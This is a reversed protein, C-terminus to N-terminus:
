EIPDVASRILKAMEISAPIIDYTPIKIVVSPRKDLTSTIDIKFKLNMILKKIAGEILRRKNERFEQVEKLYAKKRTKIYETLIQNRKAKSISAYKKSDRISKKKLFSKGILLLREELVSDWLKVLLEWNVRCKKAYEHWKRQILIVRDILKKFQHPLAHNNRSSKVCKLLQKEIFVRYNATVLTLINLARLVTIQAPDVGRKMSYMRQIRTALINKKTRELTKQRTKDITSQIYEISTCFYILSLWLKNRNQLTTLQEQMERNKKDLERKYNHKNITFITKEKKRKINENKNKIVIEKKIEWNNTKFMCTETIRLKSNAKNIKIFNKDPKRSRETQVEPLNFEDRLPSYDENNFMLHIKKRHFKKGFEVSITFTSDILAEVALYFYENKFKLNVETLQFFDQKFMSDCRFKDPETVLRSIYSVVKGMKRRINVLLPSKQNLAKIIFNQVNGKDLVIHKSEGENIMIKRQGINKNLAVIELKNLINEFDKTSPLKIGLTESPRSLGRASAPSAILSSHFSIKENERLTLGSLNSTEPRYPFSSRIDYHSDEPSKYFTKMSFTPSFSKMTRASDEIQPFSAESSISALFLNDKQKLQEQSSAKKLSIAQSKNYLIFNM